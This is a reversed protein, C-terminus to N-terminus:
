KALNRHTRNIPTVNSLRMNKCVRYYTFGNLLCAVGVCCLVKTEYRRASLENTAQKGVVPSKVANKSLTTPCKKTNYTNNLTTLNCAGALRQLGRRFVCNREFRRDHERRNYVRPDHPTRQYPHKYWVLGPGNYHRGAFRPCIRLLAGHRRWDRDEDGMRRKRRPGLSQWAIGASSQLRFEWSPPSPYFQQMGDTSHRTLADSLSTTKAKTVIKRVIWRNYHRRFVEVTMIDLINVFVHQQQNESVSVKKRWITVSLNSHTHNRIDLDFDYKISVVFNYGMGGISLLVNAISGDRMTSSFPPQLSSQVIQIVGIFAPSVTQSRGIQPWVNWRDHIDCQNTTLSLVPATPQQGSHLMVVTIGHLSNGVTVTTWVEGTSGCLISWDHYMVRWLFVMTTVNKPIHHVHIM